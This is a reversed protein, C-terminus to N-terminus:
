GQLVGASQVMVAEAMQRDYEADGGEAAEEQALSPLPLIHPGSDCYKYPECKSGKEGSAPGNLIPLPAEPDWAAHRSCPRHRQLVDSSGVVDSNERGM